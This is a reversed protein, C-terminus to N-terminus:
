AQAGALLAVTHRAIMLEENTAMVRVRCASGQRSIIEAHAENAAPELVIGLHGLWECAAARVPAAHQGIGGTFVLTDIGGLVACLAGIHRQLSYSFAHVAQAAAPDHGRAALLQEMNASTGSIGLLGAERELMQELSRADYAGTRLLHLLVGPDLDGSRTGMVLGGCPTLGMTTDIPRGDRVAALSAGSGLHAIVLRGKGADALAHVIYEYSLGHFGYRRVGRDWLARPLPLRRAVEPMDRHFATDFCVVQPVGAFGARAAELAALEAPLHLPAFPVLAELAQLTQASVLEPAVHDAGGHVIRHGLASPKPLSRQELVEFLARAADGHDASQLCREARIEGPGKSWLRAAGQGIGEVAASALLQESSGLQWLGLKLSSSGSNLCLVVHEAAM